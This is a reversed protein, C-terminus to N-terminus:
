LQLNQYLFLSLREESWRGPRVGAQPRRLALTAAPLNDRNRNANSTFLGWRTMDLRPLTARSYAHSKSYSYIYNPGM